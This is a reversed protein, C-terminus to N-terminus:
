KVLKYEIRPKGREGGDSAHFNLFKLKYVNGAADKIVFFRDTLVGVPAGPFEASPSTVRWKHGIVNYDNSFTTTAINSASYADYSVTSNLVLAATVGGLKNIFILDSFNYPVITGGFNTEYVSYTWVFDWKSKEPEGTAVVGNDFSVLLFSYDSNKTINVTQFTTANLEGYQLTYGNGNRTIKAKIWARAAIGGGTGRNIIIVKNNSATASVEPIVTGTLSGNLADISNYHSASPSSQSIALTLGATDAAVVAGLDTKELVKVAASTTNNIKVRFESGGYFGLDWSARAVSDQKDASFDVFVSNKASAGGAGGNLQLQSGSSPPIVIVPDKDKKCATFLAALCLIASLKQFRLM